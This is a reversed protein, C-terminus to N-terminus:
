FYVNANKTSNQNTYANIDNNLSKKCKTLIIDKKTVPHIGKIDCEKMNEGM